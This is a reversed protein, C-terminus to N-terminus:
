KTRVNLDFQLTGVRDRGDKVEVMIRHTGPPVATDAVEIGDAKIHSKLRGTLDVATFQAQGAALATLNPDTGAGPQITVDLNQEAFYGKEKAVWAMADRGVFGFGTVYTVKDPTSSNSQPTPTSSNCGATTLVTAVFAALAIARFHRIM